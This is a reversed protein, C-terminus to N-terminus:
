GNGELRDQQEQSIKKMIRDIGHQLASRQNREIIECNRIEQYFGSHGEPEDFSPDSAILNAIGRLASSRVLSATQMNRLVRLIEHRTM